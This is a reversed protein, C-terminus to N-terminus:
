LPRPLSISHVSTLRSLPLLELHLGKLKSGVLQLKLLLTELLHTM